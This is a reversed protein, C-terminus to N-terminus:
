DDDGVRGELRRPRGVIGHWFCGRCEGRQRGAGMPSARLAPACARVAQFPAITNLRYIDIFDEVDLADRDEHAGIGAGGGTV